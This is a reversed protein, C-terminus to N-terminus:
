KLQAKATDVLKTFAAGDHIALESLMKRNIDINALRLGNMFRSYSIDNNRCAANIRRIWLKRMERKLKKRDIYSYRHSRMVQENATRFLLKKSGFYGKAQKLIRKRRARTQVSNKVRAM